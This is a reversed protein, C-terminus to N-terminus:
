PKYYIKTKNRIRLLILVVAIVAIAILIDYYIPISKLKCTLNCVGYQSIDITSVKVNQPNYVNIEKGEEFYPILLTIDQEEPVEPLGEQDPLSFYIPNEVKPSLFIIPIETKFSFLVKNTFSVVDIRYGIEPQIRYDPAFGNKVEISNLVIDGRDYHINLVYIKNEQATAFGTILLSIIVILIALKM